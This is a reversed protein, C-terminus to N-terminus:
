CFCLSQEKFCVEVDLLYGGAGAEAGWVVKDLFELGGCAVRWEFPFLTCALSGM